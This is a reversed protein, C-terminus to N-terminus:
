RSLAQLQENMWRPCQLAEFRKVIKLQQIPDARYSFAPHSIVKYLPICERKQQPRLKKYAAEAQALRKKQLAEAEKNAKDEAAQKVAFDQETKYLSEDIDKNISYQINIVISNIYKGDKDQFSCQNWDCNITISDPTINVVRNIGLVPCSAGCCYGWRGENQFCLENYNKFPYINNDKDLINFSSKIDINPNYVATFPVQIKGDRTKRIVLASIANTQKIMYGTRGADKTPDIKNRYIIAINKYGPRTYITNLTQEQLLLPNGGAMVTNISNKVRSSKATEADIQSIKYEVPINFYYDDPINGYVDRM